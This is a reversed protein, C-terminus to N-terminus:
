GTQGRGSRAPSRGGCARLADLGDGGVARAGEDLVRRRCREDTLDEAGDVLEVLGHRPMRLLM